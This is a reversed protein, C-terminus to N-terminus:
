VYSISHFFVRRVWLVDVTFAHPPVKLSGSQYDCIPFGISFVRKQGLACDITPMHHALGTSLSTQNIQATIYGGYLCRLTLLPVLCTHLQGSSLHVRGM